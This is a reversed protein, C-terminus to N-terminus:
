YSGHRLWYAWANCPDGYRHSIYDLGWTIQTVPNTRWDAGAAAMKTAPLAQPIGYAGSVSNRITTQFMSERQWLTELCTWQQGTWGRTAALVRAMDRPRGSVAALASSRSQVQVTAPKLAPIAAAAPKAATLPASKAANLVAIGVADFAVIFAHPKLSTGVVGIPPLESEFAVNQRVGGNIDRSAALTDDRATFTSVDRASKTDAVAVDSPSAGVSVTLAGTATGAAVGGLVCLSVVASIRSPAVKAWPAPIRSM